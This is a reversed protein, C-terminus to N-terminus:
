LLLEGLAGVCRIADAVALRTEPRRVLSAYKARSSVADARSRESSWEPHTDLSAPLTSAPLTAAPPVGTDDAPPAGFFPKRGIETLPSLVRQGEMVDVAVVGVVADLVDDRDALAAVDVDVADVFWRIPHPVALEGDLVAVGPVLVVV